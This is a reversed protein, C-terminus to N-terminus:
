YILYAKSYIDEEHQYDFGAIDLHCLRGFYIYKGQQKAGGYGAFIYTGARRRRADARGEWCSLIYYVIAM